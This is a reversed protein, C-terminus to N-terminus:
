IQPFLRHESTEDPKATAAAGLGKGWGAAAAQAQTQLQAFNAAIANRDFLKKMKICPCAVFATM